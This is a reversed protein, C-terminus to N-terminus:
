AIVEEFRGDYFEDCNRSWLENTNLSRYNVLNESSKVHVSFSEVIYIGGTRIHKYKVGIM